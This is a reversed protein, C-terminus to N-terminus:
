INKLIITKKNQKITRRGGREVRVSVSKGEEGSERVPRRPLFLRRGGKRGLRALHPLGGHRGAESQPDRLRHDHHHRRGHRRHHRLLLGGLGGHGHLAAGHPHAPTASSSRCSGCPPTPIRRMPSSCPPRTRGM